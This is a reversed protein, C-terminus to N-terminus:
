AAALDDAGGESLGPRPRGFVVLRGDPDKVAFAGPAFVASPSALIPQEKRELDRRVRGLQAEDQLRYAIFPQAGPAGKGIVIRRQPGGLLTTGDELPSPRMGLADRYFAALRAPDDSDLRLHDLRAPWTPSDSM